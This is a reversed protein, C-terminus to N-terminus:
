GIGQCCVKAASGRISVLIVVLLSLALITVSSGAVARENGDHIVRPMPSFWWGSYEDLHGDFTIATGSGTTEYEEWRQDVNVAWFASITGGISLLFAICCSGFFAPSVLNKSIAM